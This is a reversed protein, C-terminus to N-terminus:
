DPGEEKGPMFVGQVREGGGASSEVRSVGTALNMVLRDGRIVNEGRTLVVAGTLNIVSEEVNYVGKEGQATETPSSVFVDGEADIRWITAQGLVNQGEHYYVTLTQARLRLEGQVADVDGRFIAAKKERDVELSDATVEIPQDLDYTGRPETQAAAVPAVLLRILLALAVLAGPAKLPLLGRRKRRDRAIRSM